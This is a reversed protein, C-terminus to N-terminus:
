LRSGQMVAYVAATAGDQVPELVSSRPEIYARQMQRSIIHLCDVSPKLCKDALKGTQRDKGRAHRRPISTTKQRANSLGLGHRDITM